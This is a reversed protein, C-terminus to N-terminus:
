RAAKAEASSLVGNPRSVAPRKSRFPRRCRPQVRMRRAIGFQELHDAAPFEGDVAKAVAVQPQPQKRIGIGALRILVAVGRRHRALKRQQARMPQDLLDSARM